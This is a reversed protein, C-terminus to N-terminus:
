EGSVDLREWRELVPYVNTSNVTPAGAMIGLNIYPYDMGEVAWLAEPDAEHVARIEKVAELEYVNDVGRRIPNVLLGSVSMIGIVTILFVTEVYRQTFRLMCVFLIGFVIATMLLTKKNWYSRNYDLALYMLGALTGGSVLMAGPRSVPRKMLSLARIVLIVNVFGAIQATRPGTSYSMMMMKALLTPFGAIVWIELAASVALLILLLRDKIKDRLLVIGPLIYCFPFFDIFQASECVNVATGTGKIAYWIGSLYNSLFFGFGGGTSSRKGPYATNMITHITGGSKIVIYLILVTFVLAILVAGIWDRRRMRCKKRNDFFTWFLLGLLIFGLPIQWAPYMTFIYGGACLGIIAAYALRYRSNETRMYKILMVVSVQIYILMEVLGNVAYWWHVVPALSILAAYSLALKKRGGTVYLGMEFSCLALMLFRACWYFALGRGQSLFLYGWHFPRFIVAIDRVPQGYELFVDTSTGRVVHSFYSFRGAHDYYQSLAMPTSCAWEDTRVARPVGFLEGSDPVGFCKSWMGISSGNIEMGVCVLLLFLALCFRYRFLFRAAAKKHHIAGSLLLTGFVFCVYFDPHFFDEKIKHVIEGLPFGGRVVAIQYAQWFLILAFSIGAGIAVSRVTHKDTYKKM